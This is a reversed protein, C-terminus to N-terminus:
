SHGVTLFLRPAVSIVVDTVSDNFFHQIEGALTNDYPASGIM